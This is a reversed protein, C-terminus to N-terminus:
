EEASLFMTAGISFRLGTLPINDHSVRVQGYQFCIEGFINYNKSFYLEVGSIIDPLLCVETVRLFDRAATITAMSVGGGGYVTITDSRKLPSLISISLYTFNFNTTATFPLRISNFYRRYNYRANFVLGPGIELIKHRAFLEYGGGIGFRSNYLDSSFFAPYNLTGAVGLGTQAQIPAILLGLILIIIFKGTSMIERMTLHVMHNYYLFIFFISQFTM